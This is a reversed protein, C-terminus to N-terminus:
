HTESANEGHMNGPFPYPSGAVPFAQWVSTESSEHTHSRAGKVAGEKGGQPLLRRKYAKEGRGPSLTKRAVCGERCPSLGQIIGPLAKGLRSTSCGRTPLYCRPEWKDIHAVHVVSPGGQGLAGVVQKSGAAEQLKIFTPCDKMLHNSVRKGDIYTYNM